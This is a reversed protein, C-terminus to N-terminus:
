LLFITDISRFDSLYDARKVYIKLLYLIRMLSPLSINHFGIGVAVAVGIGVAVSIGVSISVGTEM